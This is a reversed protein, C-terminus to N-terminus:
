KKEQELKKRLTHCEEITYGAAQADAIYATQFKKDKETEFWPGPVFEVPRKYDIGNKFQIIMASMNDHSGRNLCEDLLDACILALDNTQKM